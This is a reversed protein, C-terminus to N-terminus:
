HRYRKAKALVSEASQSSRGCAEFVAKDFILIEDGRGERAVNEFVLNISSGKPLHRFTNGYDCFTTVINEQLSALKKAQEADSERRMKEMEAVSKDRVKVIAQQASEMAAAADKRAQSDKAAKVFEQRKQNLVKVKERQEKAFAKIKDTHAKVKQRIESNEEQQGDFFFEQVHVPPVLPIPPIAPVTEGGFMMVETDIDTDDSMHWVQQLGNEAMVMANEIMPSVSSLHFNLGAGFVGFHPSVHFVLGQGELYLSDFSARQQANKGQTASELIGVMIDANKIITEREDKNEAFAPATALAGSLLTGAVIRSLTKHKFM